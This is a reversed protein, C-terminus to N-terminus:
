TERPPWRIADSFGDGNVDGATAVSIGFGGAQDSEATWGATPSLGTASGQYLYARGQDPQSNTFGSAGVIVDSFGDGNVDGATSVSGGFLSGVQGSEATWNSTLSLGGSSGHYMFARGEDDFTPAGVIVDSFGDGNVDGPNGEAAWSANTGLGGAAGHYVMAQGENTEGNDFGGAGVIVDSFGDGNVDGATAVPIGFSASAQNGEATWDPTISLGSASGQYLYARGEDTQGNDFTPAGVIVDSFGDGNM